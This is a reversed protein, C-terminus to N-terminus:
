FSLKLPSRRIPYAPNEPCLAVNGGRARLRKALRKGNVFAVVIHCHRAQISKDVVLVDGDEISASIM